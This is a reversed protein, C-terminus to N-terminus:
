PGPTTAAAEILTRRDGITRQAREVSPGGRSVLVGTFTAFLAVNMAAIAVSVPSEIWRGSWDNVPPGVAVMNAFLAASYPVYLLLWRRDLVVLPAMLVLMPYLYREHTSVPLVYFACALYAASVLAAELTPRRWVVAIALVAASCSLALGVSRYTIRPIAGMVATDPRPHSGVDIPWWLNWAGMSLREYDATFLRHYTDVIRMADGHMIWPSLVGVFVAAGVAVCECLARWGGSRLTLVVLVPLAVVPHPKVLFGLTWAAWALRPRRCGALVVAGLMAAAVAGDVQAWVAGDYVIAPQFAVIAAAVMAMAHPSLRAIPEAAAHRRILARTATYVVAILVVDFAIAPAKVLAHLSPTTQTYPGGIVGYIASLPWLVWHYGVYDSDSARFINLVGHEHINQMWLKWFDEDNFTGPLQAYLPVLAIRVSVAALM